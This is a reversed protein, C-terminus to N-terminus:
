NELGSFSCLFARTPGRSAAPTSDTASPTWGRAAGHTACTGSLTRPRRERQPPPHRLPVMTGFHFFETSGTAWLGTRPSRTTSSSSSSSAFDLPGPGSLPRRPRSRNVAHIHTGANRPQRDTQRDTRAISALRVHCSSPSRPSFPPSLPLKPRQHARSTHSLM